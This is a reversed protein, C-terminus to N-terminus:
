PVRFRQLGVKFGITKLDEQVQARFDKYTFPKYKTSHIVGDGEPFVFYCISIREERKNMVRHKVSKYEDNSMVQFMDGINVILTNTIPRIEMWRDDKCIQLGGVENQNLISLVTSDTHAGLGEAKNPESCQLYRYVRFTGTSESLYSQSLTPDMGVNKRLAEFLCRGLRAMHRGYEELLSRFSHLVPDDGLMQPLQNLITFIGEMRNVNQVEKTIVVGNPTLAPTGWFYSLPSQIRAKKSEFPLSFLKKSEEQLQATLEMPIGHNVLRFMGWDRCAKGIEVPNLKQLDICPLLDSEDLIPPFSEAPEVTQASESPQFFLLPYSSLDQGSM